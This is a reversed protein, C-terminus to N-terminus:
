QQPSNPQKKTEKTKQNKSKQDKSKQDKTKTQKKTKGQKAEKIAQDREAADQTAQKTTLPKLRALPDKKEREEATDPKGSTVPAAAAPRRQPLTARPQDPPTQSKAFNRIEGGEESKVSITAPADGDIVFQWNGQKDVTATGLPTGGPASGSYITVKSAFQGTEPNVTNTGTVCVKGQKDKDKCPGYSSVFVRDSNTVSFLGWIGTPIQDGHYTRYLYDGATLAPGGAQNIVLDSHLGPGHNISGLQQSDPNGASAEEAGPSNPVPVIVQSNQGYPEQQWNHGHIIMNQGPQVGGPHLMRFRSQTGAKASFVPTQPPANVATNSFANSVDAPYDGPAQAYRYSLPETRYNIAGQNFGDTYNSNSQTQQHAVDNQMVVVFERFTVASARSSQDNCNVTGYYVSASANTGADLCWTSGKPEVALAGVLGRPDQMIPDSPLLNGAGLEIAKGTTTSANTQINGAYWQYQTCPYPSASGNPLPTNCPTDKATVTQVPNFGVNVGNSSTVDYSLLQPHLGVTSSTFVAIGDNDDNVVAGGGPAEQLGFQTSTFINNGNMDTQSPDLANRLTVKVCDGAAARLVIPEVPVGSNLTAKGNSITLDKTFVYLIADPDYIPDNNTGTGSGRQNYMLVGPKGATIPPLAQAASIATVDYQITNASDSPCGTIRGPATGAPNSALKPLDPQVSTSGNFARLIGWMGHQLSVQDAGGAYLYDAFKTASGGGYSTQGATPVTFLMEFHESIGTGQSARYGSNNVAMPDTPTGPEAFWKVGHMTFFHPLVHAGVLVRVQVKDNEYARLLPTFPDYCQAGPFAKPFNFVGAPNNSNACNTPPQPTAVCGQGTISGNPQCNLDNDKRTISRFAHSLDGQIGSLPNDPNSPDTVRLPLPESRYNLAATGIALKASIAQPLTKAATFGNIANLADGWGWPTPPNSSSTNKIMGTTLDIAPYPLGSEHSPYAVQAKRSNRLYALALDQYELVFERYSDQGLTGTTIDANWSTPGGDMRTPSPMPVNTQLQGNTDYYAPISWTSGQPEIVLGAYLGAQQHTSPGFHDHTFVTRLTRDVGNNDLVPDAYWRQITTQAGVWQGSKTPTSNITCQPPPTPGSCFYFPAQITLPNRSGNTGYLGCNSTGSTCTANIGQIRAQVDQPSLTGDEYNFGNAAGDSSTVDFKVLHIHQGLIDTPTRVQFDDLDYYDPVLNTHWFEILDGTNARFFFPEPPRKGQLTPTVDEWLTILRQQPYHWGKKNFVVDMEIDAAKYVRKTKAPQGDIGVGPDAFPAGPQPPLGNLNFISSQGLPTFSPNPGVAHAAMAVKEVKNGGEEVQIALLQNNDKSFDWQNHRENSIQGGLIVHRPLGGDLPKGTPDVAFDLPPHPPRHGAIGPVFFPFGPNKGASLDTQNVLAAYGAITSGSPQSPCDTGAFSSSTWNTTFVTGSTQPTTAYVPCLKVKAPIPAMALTPVPVIAPIPTGNAIEGDPLARNWGGNAAPDVQGNSLLQTGTEFADHVRWLAWMGAAFHPYFHCHFISDGVTKNLNGNGDHAIELTYTAGPNILQSDLYASQDSNPTLLWQHAHLHHVHPLAIGAHLLRFKTHDNMYGHYVNSPDDPFYATHAKFVPQMVYPITQFSTPDAKSAGASTLVPSIQTGSPANLYTSQSLKKCDPANATGPQPPSCPPYTTNPQAPANAPVDVVMAPDGVAWSSLFFEEFKCETCNAMPGVGFRNALIEAGIGGVGYNIAFQDQIANLTKLKNGSPDVFQGSSLTTFAQVTGPLEHYVITFERFPKRRNPYVPNANFQPASGTFDGQNPGTIVATLDSHVVRGSGDLMGLVPTNAPITTGDPWTSGPGTTPYTATYNILPQSGLTLLTGDPWNPNGATKIVQVSTPYPGLTTLTCQQQGTGGPCTLSSNPPLKQPANGNYTAYKMDANAVQSRYWEANEVEVNVAGFLGSALQGGSGTFDDGASFLLFTGEDSAYYTYQTNAGPAVLSTANSGVFSGDSGIGTGTTGPILQLGNVHIGATRTTPQSSNVQTSNLLNIFNIQLCQGVNMRLVFPRPRKSPRLIVNGKTCTTQECNTKLPNGNSDLPVVDRTLAFVMGQPLAAGLRNVMLPQDIAAVDARITKSCVPQATNSQQACIQNPIALLALAMTIGCKLCYRLFKHRSM